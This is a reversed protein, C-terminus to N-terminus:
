LNELHKLWWINVFKKFDGGKLFHNKLLKYVDMKAKMQLIVVQQNTFM